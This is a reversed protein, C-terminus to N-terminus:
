RARTFDMQLLPPPSAPRSKPVQRRRMLWGLGILLMGFVPLSPSVVFTLIGLYTSAEPSLADFTLLLAFSFLSGLTVVLGILSLWNRFLSYKPTANKSNM